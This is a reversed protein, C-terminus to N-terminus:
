AHSIPTISQLSNVYGGINPMNSCIIKRVEGAPIHPEEIRYGYPLRVMEVVRDEADQPFKGLWTTLPGMPNMVM